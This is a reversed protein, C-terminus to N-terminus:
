AFASVLDPPLLHIGYSLFWVSWPFNVFSEYPSDNIHPYSWCLVCYAMIDCVLVDRVLYNIRCSEKQEECAVMLIGFDISSVIILSSGGAFKWATPRCKIHERCWEWWTYKTPCQGQYEEALESMSLFNGTKGVCCTWHCQRFSFLLIADSYRSCVWYLVWIYKWTALFSVEVWKINEFISSLPKSESGNMEKSDILQLIQYELILFFNLGGFGCIIAIKNFIFEWWLNGSALWEWRWFRSSFPVLRSDM